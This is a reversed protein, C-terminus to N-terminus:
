RLRLVRAILRRGGTLGPRGALLLPLTLMRKLGAM